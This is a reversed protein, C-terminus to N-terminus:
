VIWLLVYVLVVHVGNVTVTVSDHQNTQTMLVCLLRNLAFTLFVKVVAVVVSVRLNTSVDTARGRQVLRLGVSDQAMGGTATRRMASRYALRRVLQEHM